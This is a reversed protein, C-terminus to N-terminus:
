AFMDIEEEAIEKEKARQTEAAQRRAHEIAQGLEARSRWGFRVVVATLNDLSSADYAQRVVAAAAASPSETVLKDAATDVVQWM